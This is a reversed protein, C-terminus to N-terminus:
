NVKESMKHLNMFEWKERVCACARVSTCVSSFFCLGWVPVQIAQKKSDMIQKALSHNSTYVRNIGIANFKIGNLM